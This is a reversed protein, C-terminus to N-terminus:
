QRLLWGSLTELVRHPLRRRRAFYTEPRSIGPEELLFHDLDPYAHLEVAPHDARWLTACADLAESAPVQWDKVGYLLLVGTHRPIRQWAARPKRRLLSRWHGAPLDGYRAAPYSGARITQFDAEMQRAQALIGTEPYGALRLMHTSQRIALRDAPSIPAALLMLGRLYGLDGALTVAILGGESHGLLYLREPDVDPRAKLLALAAIVDAALLDLTWEEVSGGSRGVGRKDYRLTVFGRAGLCEAIEKFPKIAWDRAPPEDPEMTGDRLTLRMRPFTYDADAAAPGHILVVGPLRPARRPVPITVTGWLDIGQSRFAVPEARLEGWKTRIERLDAM